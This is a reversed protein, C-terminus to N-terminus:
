RRVRVSQSEEVSMWEGNVVEPTHDPLQPYGGRQQDGGCTEPMEVPRICGFERTHSTQWSLNDTGASRRGTDRYESTEWTTVIESTNKPTWGTLCPRSPTCVPAPYAQGANNHIEGRDMSNARKCVLGILGVAGAIAFITFPDM